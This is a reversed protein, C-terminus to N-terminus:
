FTMINNTIVLVKEVAGPLIVYNGLIDLLHLLWASILYHTLISNYNPFDRLCLSYDGESTRRCVGM